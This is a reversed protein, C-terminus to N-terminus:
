PKRVGMLSWSGNLNNSGTFRIKDFSNTAAYNSYGGALSRSLNTDWTQVTTAFETNGVGRICCTIFSPPNLGADGVYFGAGGNTNVVSTAGLYDARVLAGYYQTTRATAGLYLVGTVGTAAAGAISMRLEYFLYASSFGTVDFSVAGSFSAGAVFQLGSNALYANIDSAPLSTNDTFTKVAM